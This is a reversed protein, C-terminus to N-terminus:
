KAKMKNGKADHAPKALGLKEMLSPFYMGFRGRLERKLGHWGGVPNDESRGWAKVTGEKAPKQGDASGVNWRTEM